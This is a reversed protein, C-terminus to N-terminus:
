FGGGIPMTNQQPAIGRNAMTGALQGLNASGAQPMQQQGMGGPPQLMPMNPMGQPAPAGQMGQKLNTNLPSQGQGGIGYHSGVKGLIASTLQDMGQPVYEKTYPTSAAAFARDIAGQTQSNPSITQTEHGNAGPSYTSSGFPNVTNTRNYQNELAIITAPDPAPPPAHSSAM